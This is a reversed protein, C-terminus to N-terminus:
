PRANATTAAPPRRVPDTAGRRRTRVRRVTHVLWLPLVFPIALLAGIVAVLVLPVVVLLLGPLALPFLPMLLIGLGVSLDAVEM